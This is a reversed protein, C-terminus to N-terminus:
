SAFDLGELARAAPSRVESGRIVGPIEPIPLPRAAAPADEGRQADHAVVAARALDKLWAGRPTGLRVRDVDALEDESLRLSIM